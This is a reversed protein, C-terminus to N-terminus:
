TNKPFNTKLYDLFHINQYVNLIVLYGALSDKTYFGDTKHRYKAFEKIAHEVNNNNWPIGNFLILLNQM